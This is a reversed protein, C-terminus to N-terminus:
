PIYSYLIHTGHTITKSYFIERSKNCNINKANHSSFMVKRYDYSINKQLPLGVSNLLMTKTKLVQQVSYFSFSSVTKHETCPM